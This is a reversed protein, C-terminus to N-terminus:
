WTAIAPVDTSWSSSAPVSPSESLWFTGGDMKEVKERSYFIACHEDNPENPGKRSVGFQEYGPLLCAIDDLQSKLGEQTCVLLPSFKKIINACIDKRHEWSNPGDTTRERHLNFTMITLSMHGDSAFDHVRRGASESETDAM